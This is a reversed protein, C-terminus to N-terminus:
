VQAGDRDWKEWIEAAAARQAVTWAEVLLKRLEATPEAAMRITFEGNPVGAKWLGRTWECARETTAFTGCYRNRYFVVVPGM